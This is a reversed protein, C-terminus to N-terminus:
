MQFLQQAINSILSILGGPFMGLVVALVALLLIPVLMVSDAEKRVFGKRSEEEGPFFGKMTIPLLYGATLLASLLLVM